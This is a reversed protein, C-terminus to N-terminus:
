LSSFPGAALRRGLCGALRVQQVNLRRDLSATGGCPGKGRELTPSFGALALLLTWSRPPARLGGALRVQERQAPPRPVGYRRLHARTARPVVTRNEMGPKALTARGDRALGRLRRGPLSSSGRVGGRPHGAVGVPVLAVRAPGSPPAAVQMPAAGTLVAHLRRPRQSRVGGPRRAPRRAQPQRTGIEAATAQHQSSMGREPESREARVGPRVCGGEHFAIESAEVSSACRGGRYFPRTCPPLGSIPGGAPVPARSPLSPSGGSAGTAFLPAFHEAPGSSGAGSCLAYEVMM